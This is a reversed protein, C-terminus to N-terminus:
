GEGRPRAFLWCGAVTTRAEIDCVEVEEYLPEGSCALLCALLCSVTADILAHVIRHSTVTAFPWFSKEPRQRWQLGSVRPQLMQLLSQFM